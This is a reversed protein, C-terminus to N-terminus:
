YYQRRRAGQISGAILNRCLISGMYFINNLEYLSRMKLIRKILYGPRLYFKIYGRRIHKDLVGINDSSNKLSLLSGKRPKFINFSVYDPDLEKVSKISEKVTEMSEGPLGFLFHAGSLIKNKKLMNFTSKVAQPSIPKGYRKLMDHDVSEVGFQILYCGARKMLRLLDEDIIDVRSYCNWQIKIGEKCIANCLRATHERNVGFTMDAFFVQKIGSKVIYRLEEIINDLKRLKFGINGSNCFHCGYPCGYTTIISTFPKSRNYPYRYLFLPFRELLPPPYEFFKGPQNTQSKIIYNFQAPDEVFDSVADNTFDLIAGDIFPYEGIIDQTNEMFIEGVGFILVNIGKLKEIFSFDEKYSLVSSLFIIIDPNIEKIEHECKAFSLKRAISDLIYVEFKRGLLGSLVLLDIPPWYYGAKSISSCYYDRLYSIRGPPNLLLIKKSTTSKMLNIDIM